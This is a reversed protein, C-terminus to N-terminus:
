VSSSPNKMCFYHTQGDLVIQTQLVWFHNSCKALPVTSVSFESFVWMLRDHESVIPFKYCTQMCGLTQATKWYLTTTFAHTTHAWSGWCLHGNKVSRCCLPMKVKWWPYMYACDDQLTNYRQGRTREVTKCTLWGACQVSTGFRTRAHLSSWFSESSDQILVTRHDRRSGMNWIPISLFNWLKLKKQQERQVSSSPTKMCFIDTRIDTHGTCNPDTFGLLPEFM